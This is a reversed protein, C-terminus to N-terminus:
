RRRIADVTRSVALPGFGALAGAGAAIANPVGANALFGYVAGALALGSALETPRKKALGKM